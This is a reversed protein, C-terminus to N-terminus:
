DLRNISILNFCNALKTAADEEKNYLYRKVVDTECKSLENFCQTAINDTQDTEFQVYVQNNEWRNKFIALYERKIVIM